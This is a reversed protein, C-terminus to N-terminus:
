FLGLQGRAGEVKALMRERWRLAFTLCNSCKAHTCGPLPAERRAALSWALSDSSGLEVGDAALAALGTTKFGFAHSTLGLAGLDDTLAAMIAAGEAGSQRRCVSGVGVVPARLFAERTPGDLYLRLCARYDALSWGQLVPAWPLDPAIEVLRRFSEVSRAQHEEVTLGTRELMIPECMYDQIAAWTLNGIEDRFRRVEAAYDEPTVTWRGHMSLETFGGSDLAWPGLARPLTRRKALTRRSVFLPVATRALWGAKHTGLYFTM